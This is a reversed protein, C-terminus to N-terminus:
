ASASSGQAGSVASKVRKEIEEGPVKLVQLLDIYNGRVRQSNPHELGLSRVFIGLARRMLPEAEALRNTEQLLSALNNLDIAVDPHDPGYSTEDIGLARRMLPEAEALRNTAQLLQALNNLSIAVNFHDKGYSVEFIKVVRRILPEAEGLRNTDQLLAALNNLDRAVSPHDPGYSAEDIGLARRMLPEAEAFRKTAQFLQALNNLARGINPHGEGLSTEWIGLARRMLPEAEALRNTAQLLQALNNLRIAVRPHDQGYTAEDISLARRMLPEAEALRNKAKLLQALNDLADATKPNDSGFSSASWALAQHLIPEAENFRSAHQYLYALEYMWSLVHPLLDAPPPDGAERLRRELETIRFAKEEYPMADVMPYGSFSETKLDTLPVPEPIFEFQHSRYRWFDPAHRYLLTIAYEALWFIVPCRFAEWHERSSNLVRLAPQSDSGFPVSAEIDLVFIVAPTQTGIQTAAATYIGEVGAPLRVIATGPFETSFRQVLSDRLKRDDCVAFSLSFTGSSIELMRRFAALDAAQREADSERGTTTTRPPESM